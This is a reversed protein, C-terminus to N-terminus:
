GVHLHKGSFGRRPFASCMTGFISHARSIIITTNIGLINEKITHNFTLDFSGSNVIGIVEKTVDAVKEELSPNKRANQM